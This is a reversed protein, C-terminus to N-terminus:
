NVEETDDNALSLLARLGEPTTLHSPVGSDANGASGPKGSARRWQARTGGWPDVHRLVRVSSGAEVAALPLLVVFEAGSETSLAPELYLDGLCDQVAQAAMALGIGSGGPKTSFFPEFIRDRIEPPIGKGEDRFHLAVAPGGLEAGRTLVSRIELRGGDPQAELANVMLNLIVSKMQGVRALVRDAEADLDLTLAVGQRQFRASLLGAAEQVLTHLSVPELSSNPASSLELVGSVSANLRDVEKLSIEVPELCFEPISGNRAWRHLRQLNLKISSLPNRIEHALYASLQGVVALRGSQDVKAMMQRIRALMRSFALTLQGVEGSTPLPLWPDLEGTGIEEAARALERLSRTFRGLLMYFSLATTFALLLVFVWYAGVMQRISSAVPVPPATTVVRWSTGTVDAFGGFRAEGEEKFRFHGGRQGSSLGAAPGETEVMAMATTERECETSLLVRGTEKELLYTERNRGKPMTELLDDAWFGATLVRAEGKHLADVSLEVIGAGLGDVCRYSTTPISGRVIRLSGTGPGIGVYVARSIAPDGLTWGQEPRERGDGEPPPLTDLPILDRALSALEWRIRSGQERIEEGLDGALEQIQAQASTRLIGQAYWNSLSALLLLPLVALGLFMLILKRRLSM